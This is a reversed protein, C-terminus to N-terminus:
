DARDRRGNAVASATGEHVDRISRELWKEAIAHFDARGRADLQAWARIVDLFKEDEAPILLQYPELHFKKALSDLTDLQVNHRAREINNVTKPAVGLSEPAGAKDRLRRVNEALVDRAKRKDAMGPLTNRRHRLTNCSLGGFIGSANPLTNGTTHRSM